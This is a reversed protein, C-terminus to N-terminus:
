AFILVPEELLEKLYTLFEGAMVGDIIRHDVSLTVRMTKGPVVAGDKVLAEDQISSVALIAGQGPNIIATFHEVENKGINSISFTGGQLDDSKPKGSRARQILARSEQVVELLPLADAQKLVPILLGDPLATIIGINVSPPEVLSGADFRSNIRPFKRLALAAAKIIMHTVTIGEYEPRVKLLERTKLLADVEIRSTAYFHPATNVSEVMRSAITQRMRSLPETKSEQQSSSPRSHLTDAERSSGSGTKEAVVPASSGGSQVLKEVDKKTIRGGEGTGSVQSYDIGHSKAINKALPSIKIREESTSDSSQGASPANASGNMHSASTAPESVAKKETQAEPVEKREAQRTESTAESAEEKKQQGEASSSSSSPKEGAEGIVAILSGVKVTEGESAKIELLTGEDFSEIELDAKDTAVEALADGRSVPDGVKKFWKLITGQDMTDSLQPMTIDTAM